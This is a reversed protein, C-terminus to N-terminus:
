AAHTCRYFRTTSALLGRKARRYSRCGFPQEFCFESGYATETPPEFSAQRDRPVDIQVEGFDGKLQKRSKGNRSNGSGYGVPDHKEYGLHTTLEAEMAREVLAKTLQKLLGNEGIIDEPKQYSALLKDLVEKDIAM